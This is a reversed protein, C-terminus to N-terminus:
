IDSECLNVIEMQKSPYLHSYTNITEDINAHGLREKIAILDCGQNVLYSAHSHRLDHVRIKKVGAKEAYETLKKLYHQPTITFIREGAETGQLEILKRIDKEVTENIHVIRKSAHTKGPTIFGKEDLSKNVDILGPRVDEPTLARLEGIRLGTFFLTQYAVRFKESDVASIFQKYEDLTWFTIERNTQVKGMGGAIKAPNNECVGYKQAFTFLATLHRHFKNLTTESYCSDKFTAHWKLVDTAKIRDIDMKGFYPLIHNRFSASKNRYTGPSEHEQVHPLYVDLVFTEFQNSSRGENEQIWKEAFERAERKTKFSSKHKRVEKGSADRCEAFCEWFSGKKNEYKKCRISPM